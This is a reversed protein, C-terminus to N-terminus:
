IHQNLTLGVVRGIKSAVPLTLTREGRLFRSLQGDSVGAEQAIAYATLASNRVGERLLEEWDFPDITPRDANSKNM